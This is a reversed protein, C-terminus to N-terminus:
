VNVKKQGLFLRTLLYALINVAQVRYFKGRHLSLLHKSIAAAAEWIVKRSPVFFYVFSIKILPFTGSYYRSSFCFFVADATPKKLQKQCKEHKPLKAIAKRNQPPM